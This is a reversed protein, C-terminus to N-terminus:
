SVRLVEELTTVGRGAKQLGDQRLTRMGEAIAQERLASSSVKESLLDQLRRSMELIEFM